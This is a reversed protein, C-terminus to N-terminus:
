YYAGFPKHNKRKPNQKELTENKYRKPTKSKLVLVVFIVYVYKKFLSFHICQFM